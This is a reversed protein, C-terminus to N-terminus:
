VAWMSHQLVSLVFRHAQMTLTPWIRSVLARITKILFSKGTGGVGSVFTHLPKFDTCKCGDNEHLAQHELHSKVQEFVRSQDLSSVLEEFRTTADDSDNNHNLDLVDHMASTTEGVVHPGSDDEVPQPESINQEQAQRAENIKQVREQSKLMRQLKNSHTGILLM